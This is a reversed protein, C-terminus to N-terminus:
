EDRGGFCRRYLLAGALAGGTDKLVDAASAERGPVFSQHLEDSVGYAAALTVALAAARAPLPGHLGGALARCALGALVLYAAGHTVWDPVRGFAGVDSRASAAYIVAM